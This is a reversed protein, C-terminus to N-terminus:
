LDALEQFPLRGFIALWPVLQADRIVASVQDADNGWRSENRIVCIRKTGVPVVVDVLDPLLIGGLLQRDVSLSASAVNRAGAVAISDSTGAVVTAVRLGGSSINEPAVSSRERDCLGIVGDM